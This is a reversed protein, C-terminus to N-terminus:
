SLRFVPPIVKKSVPINEATKDTVKTGQDKNPSLENKSPIFDLVKGSAFPM